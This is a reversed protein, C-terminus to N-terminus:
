STTLKVSILPLEPRRYFSSVYVKGINYRQCTTGIQMIKKPLDKLESIDKSRLIDNIGVHIIACDNDFEELMPIVYYNLQNAKIGPFVKFAKLPKGEKEQLNLHKMKIGRPISDLFFGITKKKPIVANSFASNINQILHQGETPATLLRSRVDNITLSMKYMSQQDNAVANTSLENVLTRPPAKAEENIIKRGHFEM